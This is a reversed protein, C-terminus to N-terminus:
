ERMSLKCTECGVAFHGNTFRSYTANMTNCNPCKFRDLAKGTKQQHDKAAVLLKIGFLGADKIEGVQKDVEETTPFQKKWCHLGTEKFCPFKYPKDRRVDEYKM